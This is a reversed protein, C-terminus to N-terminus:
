AHGFVPHGELRGGKLTWNRARQRRSQLRKHGASRRPLDQHVTLQGIPHLESM